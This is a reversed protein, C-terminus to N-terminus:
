LGNGVEIQAHFTHAEEQQLQEEVNVEWQKKVDEKYIKLCQATFKLNHIEEIAEQLDHPNKTLGILRKWTNPREYLM